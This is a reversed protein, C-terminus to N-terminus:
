STSWAQSGAATRLVQMLSGGRSERSFLLLPSIGDLAERMSDIHRESEVVDDNVSV